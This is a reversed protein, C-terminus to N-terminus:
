MQYIFFHIKKDFCRMVFFIKIIYLKVHCLYLIFIIILILLSVAALQTVENVNTEYNWQALVNSTCQQNGLDDIEHLLAPIDVNDVNKDELRNENIPKLEHENQISGRNRGDYLPPLDLQCYVPVFIFLLLKVSCYM